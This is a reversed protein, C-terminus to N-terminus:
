DMESVTVSKATIHWCFENDFYVFHRHGAFTGGSPLDERIRNLYSSGICEFLGFEEYVMFQYPYNKRTTFLEDFYSASSIWDFTAVLKPSNNGFFFRSLGVPGRNAETAQGSVILRLEEVSEDRLHNDKHTARYTM